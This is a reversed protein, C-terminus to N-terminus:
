QSHWLTICLDEACSTDSAGPHKATDDTSVRFSTELKNADCNQENNTALLHNECINSPCQNFVACHHSSFM